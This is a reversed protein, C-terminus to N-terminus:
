LCYKALPQPQIAVLGASNLRGLGCYDTIHYSRQGGNTLVFEDMSIVVV